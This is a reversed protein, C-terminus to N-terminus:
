RVTRGAPQPGILAREIVRAVAWRVRPEDFSELPPQAFLEDRLRRLREREEDEDYTIQREM